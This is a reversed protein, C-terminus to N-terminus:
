NPIVAVDFGPMRQASQRAEDESTVHLILREPSVARCVREWVAKLVPRTTGEWRQLMGRPSWVIPKGMLKCLLLTPITPFSYVATLHVVDARSIYDPLLRLLRPSASVDVWRHCYRVIVGGDIEVEKGTDVDLVADPGNADTTLVRLDCGGQV